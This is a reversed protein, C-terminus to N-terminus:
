KKKTTTKVATAPTTTGPRYYKLAGPLNQQIKSIRKADNPHTSLFDSTEASKGSNTSMRQWFPVAQNPDYGAMAMFILGLQDAELEQTRSYPLLVGVQAGLGYLVGITQQVAQSKGSTLIGTLAGGYQLAMQQSLRESSHRAVAHAVEHGLVVALGTETQTIPLIGDYVVVKGGPMCFANVQKDKVLNYEWAFNQIDKEYGNTKMYSEVAAAIRSGVRKVMATNTKDTSLPAKDIFEKYSQFSMQNVETDSVLNLQRRGTLMVSSCAAIFVTLLLLPVIKKM